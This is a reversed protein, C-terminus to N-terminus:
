RGTCIKLVSRRGKSGMDSAAHYGHFSRIEAKQVDQAFSLGWLGDALLLLLIIALLAERTAPVM